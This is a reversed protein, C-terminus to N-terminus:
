LRRSSDGAVLKVDLVKETEIEIDEGRRRRILSTLMDVAKAALSETTGVSTVLYPAYSRAYINDFGVISYDEPVRKGAQKLLYWIELALVDSYVVIGTCPIKDGAIAEAVKKCNGPIASVGRVLAPDPTIGSEHLADTYGLFREQASSIYRPGHVALIRKHGNEILHKTALYGGRRDDSIVYPADVERFHRGLMVFPIDNEQLYLVNGLTHQTPAIIIGDVKRELSSRIARLELTEDEETNIMYTIYGYARAYIEIESVHWAFYPNSIDGVIVAITYTQGQRLSSALANHMYGMERAVAKVRKSTAESIDDMDRLARSITNVSLGTREAIDKLTVVNKKMNVAVRKM